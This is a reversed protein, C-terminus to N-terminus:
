EVSELVDRRCPPHMRLGLAQLLRPLLPADEIESRGAAAVGGVPLALAAAAAAAAAAAVVLACSSSSPSSSLPRSPRRRRLRRGTHASSDRNRPMPARPEGGNAGSFAWNEVIAGPTCTRGCVPGVLAFSM